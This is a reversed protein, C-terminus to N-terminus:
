GIGRNEQNLRNANRSRVRYCEPQESRRGDELRQHKCYGSIYRATPTPRKWHSCFYSHYLNSIRSGYGVNNNFIIINFIIINFITINFIIINVIIVIISNNNFYRGRFYTAESRTWALLQPLARNVWEVGEEEKRKEGEDTEDCEAERKWM